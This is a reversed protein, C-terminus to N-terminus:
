CVLHRTANSFFRRPQKTTSCGVFVIISRPCDRDNAKPLSHRKTCSRSPKELQAYNRRLPRPFPFSFAALLLSTRTNGLVPLRASPFLSSARYSVCQEATNAISGRHRVSSSDTSSVVLRRSSRAIRLSPPRRCIIRPLSM